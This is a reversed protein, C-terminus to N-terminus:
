IPSEMVYDWYKGVEMSSNKKHIIFYDLCETRNACGRRAVWNEVLTCPRGLMTMAKGINVDENHGIFNLHRISVALQPLIDSRILYGAGTAYSTIRTDNGVLSDPIARKVLLDYAEKRLFKDRIIRRMRQKRKELASYTLYSKKYKCNGIYTRNATQIYQMLRPVNLVCDSDTKMYYSTNVHIQSLYQIAGFVSLTIHHYSDVHDFQLIDLYKQNEDRIQENLEPNSGLVFFYGLSYNASLSHFRRRLKERVFMEPTSSCIFLFLDFHVKRPIMPINLYTLSKGFEITPYSTSNSVRYSFPPGYLTFLKMELNCQSCVEFSKPILEKYSWYNECENEPCIPLVAVVDNLFVM